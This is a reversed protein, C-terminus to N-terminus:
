NIWAEAAECKQHRSWDRMLHHRTRKLISVRRPFVAPPNSKWEVPPHLRSSTLRDTGTFGRGPACPWLKNYPWWFTILQLSILLWFHYLPWRYVIFPFIYLSPRLLNPSHTQNARPKDTCRSCRTEQNIHINYRQVRRWSSYIHACLSVSLLIVHVLTQTFMFGPPLIRYSDPLSENMNNHMRIVPRIWSQIKGKKVNENFEHIKFFFVGAHKFSHYKHTHPNPAFRYRTSKLHPKM